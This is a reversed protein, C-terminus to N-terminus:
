ICDDTCRSYCAGFCAGIALAKCNHCTEPYDNCMINGAICASASDECGLSCKARCYDGCKTVGAAAPMGKGLILLFFVVVAAVSAKKPISAGASAM